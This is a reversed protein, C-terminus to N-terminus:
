QLKTDLVSELPHTFYSCTEKLNKNLKMELSISTAIIDWNADAHVCAHM